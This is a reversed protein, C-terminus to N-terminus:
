FDMCRDQMKTSRKDMFSKPADSMLQRTLLYQAGSKCLDKFHQGIEKSYYCMENTLIIVSIIMSRMLFIKEM